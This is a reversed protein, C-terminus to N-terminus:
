TLLDALWCSLQLRCLDMSGNDVSGKSANVTCSQSFTIGPIMSEHEATDTCLM